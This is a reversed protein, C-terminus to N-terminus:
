CWRVPRRRADPRSCGCGASRYGDPHHTGRPASRVPRCPRTCRLSLGLPKLIVNRPAARLQAAGQKQQRAISVNPCFANLQDLDDYTEHQSMAVPCFCVLGMSRHGMLHMLGMGRLEGAGPQIEECGQISYGLFGIDARAAACACGFRQFARWWPWAEQQEAIGCWERGRPPLGGREGPPLGASWFPRRHNNTSCTADGRSRISCTRM